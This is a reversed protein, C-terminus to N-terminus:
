SETARGSLHKRLLWYAILAAECKDTRCNGPIADGFLERARTRSTTKDATVGVSRKWVSATPFEVSAGLAAAAGYASGAALSLTILSAANNVRFALPREVAVAMPGHLSEERIVLAIATAGLRDESAADELRILSGAADLVAIAGRRGPDVAIYRQIPPTPKAASPCETEPHIEGTYFGRSPPARGPLEPGATAM